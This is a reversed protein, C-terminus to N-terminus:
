ALLGQTKAWIRYPKVTQRHIGTHRQVERNSSYQRLYQLLERIDM